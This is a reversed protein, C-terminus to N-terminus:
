AEAAGARLADLLSDDGVRLLLIKRALDGDLRIVEGPEADLYRLPAELGSWRGAEVGIRGMSIGPRGRLAFRGDVRGDLEDPVPLMGQSVAKATARYAVRFRDSDLWAFCLAAGRSQSPPPAAPPGKRRCLAYRNPGVCRIAPCDQLTRWVAAPRVSRAAAEAVLQESTCVPGLQEILGVVVAERGRHVANPLRAPDWGIRGRVIRCARLKRCFKLLADDPPVASRLSGDRRLATRLQAASMAGAVALVERVRRALGGRAWNGALFWGADRDLWRFGDVSQAALEVVTGDPAHGFKFAARARIAEVRAAGGRRAAHGILSRLSQAPKVQKGPLAIRHEGDGLLSFAPTRRLVKAARLVGDLAAGAPLLGADVLGAHLAAARCPIRQEVAALLRDLAPAFPPPSKPSWRSPSCIQRVRERTLGYKRGVADLTTAPQGELCFMAKAIAEKRAGRRRGLEIGLLETQYDDRTWQEVQRCFAVIRAIDRTALFRDDARCLAEVTELGPDIAKLWPGLRPDGRGLPGVGPTAELRALADRVEAMSHRRSSHPGTEARPLRVSTFNAHCRVHGICELLDTLRAPGFRDLALLDRLTLDALADASGWVGARMLGNRTSAQLGLHRLEVGPPLPPIPSGMIHEPPRRLNRTYRLLREAEPCCRRRVPRESVEGAPCHDYSAAILDSLCSMGFGPLGLLDRVTMGALQGLERFGARRLVNHTRRGLGLSGLPLRPPSPPLVCNLIAPPVQARGDAPMGWKRLIVPAWAGDPEGSDLDPAAPAGNPCDAAVPLPGPPGEGCLGFSEMSTLLDVLCRAGFARLGLVDGIRVGAFGGMPRGQWLAHLRNFTRVELQLDRLRTGEPVPPLPEGAMEAGIHVIQHSLEQLVRRAFRRCAQEPFREWASADLECLWLPGDRAPGPAPRRLYAALTLPAIPHGRRPYTSIAM